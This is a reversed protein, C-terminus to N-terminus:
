LPYDIVPHSPYQQHRKRSPQEEAANYRLPDHGQQQASQQFTESLCVEM